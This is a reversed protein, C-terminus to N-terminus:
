LAHLSSFLKENKWHTNVRTKKKKKLAFHELIAEEPRLIEYLLLLLKHSSTLPRLSPLFHCSCTQCTSPISTHPPGLVPCSFLSWPVPGNSSSCLSSSLASQSITGLLICLPVLAEVCSQEIVSSTRWSLSKNLLRVTFTWHQQCRGDPTRAEPQGTGHAKVVTPLCWILPIQARSWSRSIEVKNYFHPGTHPM